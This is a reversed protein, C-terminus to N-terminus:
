RSARPEGAFPRSDRPYSHGDDEPPARQVLGLSPFNKPVRNFDKEIGFIPRPNKRESKWPM